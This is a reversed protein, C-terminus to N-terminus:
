CEDSTECYTHYQAVNRNHEALTSAFKTEGTKLNVTVFYLYNTDAPNLAATLAEEGPSDIPTPPLGTRVYSNYPSDLKRQEDTTVVDGRLGLAYHLTSDFQLPMDADLRNYVVSAVKQMDAAGSEAQVLSAVTVIEGPSYGLAAAKDELHISDAEQKFKAVMAHLLEPATTGKTVDYTSPFLYGEPNDKAYSPLDLAQTDDYAAKLQKLSLDTHDAITQLIETSRLGEPITVTPNKVLSDPNILVLLASRASMKSKLQYRGVQIELSRLDASAADKFAGVSKVVGAHYLTNGIDTATDGKKVEVTVLPMQGDGSYDEPGSLLDKVYGVGKVYGVFALVAILIVALLM